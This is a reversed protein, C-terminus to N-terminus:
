KIPAISLSINKTKLSRLRSLRRESEPCKLPANLRWNHSIRSFSFLLRIFFLFCFQFHILISLPGFWIKKQSEIPSFQFSLYKFLKQILLLSSETTTEQTYKPEKERGIRWRFQYSDDKSLWCFFFSM